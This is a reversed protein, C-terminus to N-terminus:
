LMLEPANTWFIDIDLELNSKSCTCTAISVVTGKKKEALTKAAKIYMGALVTPKMSCYKLSSPNVGTSMVLKKMYLQCDLSRFFVRGIGYVEKSGSREFYMGPIKEGPTTTVVVFVESNLKLAQFYERLDQEQPRAVFLHERESEFSM